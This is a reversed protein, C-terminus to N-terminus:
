DLEKSHSDFGAAAKTCQRSRFWLTIELASIIASAVTCAGMLGESMLVISPLYGMLGASGATGPFSPM